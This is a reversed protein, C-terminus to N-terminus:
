LSNILDILALKSRPMKGAGKSKAILRLQMMSLEELDESSSKAVSDPLPIADAGALLEKALNSFNPTKDQRGKSSDKKATDGHNRPLKGARELLRSLQYIGKKNSLESICKQCHVGLKTGESPAIYYHGRTTPSKESCHKVCYIIRPDGIIRWKVVSVELEASVRGVALAASRPTKIRSALREILALEAAMEKVLSEEWEKLGGHAFARVTNLMENFEKGELQMNSDLVEKYTAVQREAHSSMSQRIWALTDGSQKNSDNRVM